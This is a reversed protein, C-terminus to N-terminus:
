CLQDRTESLDGVTQKRGSEGNTDGSESGDAAILTPPSYEMMGVALIIWAALSSGQLWLDTAESSVPLRTLYAVFVISQFAYPVTVALLVMKLNWGLSVECKRRSRVITAIGLFTVVIAASNILSASTWFSRDMPASLGVLLLPGAFLHWDKRLAFQGCVAYIHLLVAAALLFYILVTGTHIIAYLRTDDGVQAAVWPMAAECLMSIFVFTFVVRYKLVLGLRFSNILLFAWAVLTLIWFAVHADM